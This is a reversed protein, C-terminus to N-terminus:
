AYSTPFSANESKVKKKESQNTCNCKKKKGTYM